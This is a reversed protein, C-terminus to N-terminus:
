KGRSRLRRLLPPMLFTLLFLGWLILAEPRSFFIEPSGLGMKLGRLLNGELLPGLIIGLLMAPPPYKYKKMIYGLVGFLVVLLMDFWYQRAAFGGVLAFVSVVPVMLSTPVYALRHIGYACITGILLMFVAASFQTWLMAYVVDGNQVLLRPGVALGQFAMIVMLVAATSSGPVGLTILPILSGGVVGNNSAEAAIIGDPNGKGFTAKQQEPAFTIAQQYSIFSAIAAGAGPVAGIGTGIMSSRLLNGWRRLVIRFGSFIGSFGIAGVGAATNEFAGEKELISLLESFALLGVLAPIIPVGDLLYMSEFTARPQGWIPDLGTTAVLLGFFGAILGRALGGSALQGLVAVGFLIVITMEVASLKLAIRSILPATTICVIGSLMGGAFSSFISIGMAQAAKGNRAMPYGDFAAVAASGTGPINLLIAPYSSGVESGCYLSVAFMLALEVPLGLMMPMLIALSNGASLGPIAGVLIGIFIGIPVIWIGSLMMSLGSFVVEEM